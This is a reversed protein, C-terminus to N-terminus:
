PITYGCDCEDQNHDHKERNYPEACYECLTWHFKDNYYTEGGSHGGRSHIVIDDAQKKFALDKYNKECDECHWYEINGDAMCNAPIREFHLVNLHGTAELIVSQKDEIEKTCAEDEYYRGCDKCDYYSINGNEECAPANAAIFEPSHETASAKSKKIEFEDVLSSDTSRYTSIKLTTPTVQINTYNPINEQIKVAAYEFDSNLLTYYKSGSSSCATLYLIGSPDTVSSQVGNESDPTFGDMMYSRVYVHDHGMLVVDIDLETFVPVLEERLTLVDGNLAHGAASYISHHFVVVKWLVHPNQKIVDEMFAKHEASSLNNTNLNIFLVDNYIYWYDSGASTAGYKQGNSATTNPDYFHRNHARSGTDHNGVITATTLSTMVEPSLYEAYESENGASNVQDGASVLFHTDPFHNLATNLTVEWNDGDTAANGSAGIQPDGVFLFNFAGTDGTSFTYTKSIIEGNRFRYIYETDAALNTMTAHCYYYDDKSAVSAVSEKYTEPFNDGEKVAYQVAADQDSYPSFWTINRQTEDAGVTICISDEQADATTQTDTSSLAIIDSAIDTTAAWAPLVALLLFASLLVLLGRKQKSM